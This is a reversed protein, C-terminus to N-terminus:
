KGFDVQVTGGAPVVVERDETGRTEDWATVRRKGPPVAELRYRGDGGVVAFCATPAVYIYARDTPSSENEITMLGPRKLTSLSVDGPVVFKRRFALESLGHYVSLDAFVTDLLTIRLSTGLQAASIRPLVRGKEVGLRLSAEAAPPPIESVPVAVFVVAGAPARGAVTGAARPSPSVAALSLSLLAAIM